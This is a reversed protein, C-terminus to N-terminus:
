AASAAKDQVHVGFIRQAKRMLDAEFNSHIGTPSVGQMVAEVVSAYVHACWDACYQREREEYKNSGIEFPKRDNVTAFHTFHGMQQNHLYCAGLVWLHIAALLDDRYM